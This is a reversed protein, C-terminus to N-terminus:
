KIQCSKCNFRSIPISSFFIGYEFISHLMIKINKALVTEKNKYDIEFRRISSYSLHYTNNQNRSEVTGTKEHKFKQHARNFAVVKKKKEFYFQMESKIGM